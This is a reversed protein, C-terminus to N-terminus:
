KGASQLEQARLQHAAIRTRSAQIHQVMREDTADSVLRKDILDMAYGDKAILATLFESGYDADPVKGLQELETRGQERSATVTTTDVLTAKADVVLARTVALNERSDARVSLALERLKPELKKTLAQEAMAILHEDIAILYAFVETQTNAAATAPVQAPPATPPPNTTTPPTPTTAAATTVLAAALLM